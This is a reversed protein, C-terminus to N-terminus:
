LGLAARDSLLRNRRRTRRHIRQELGLWLRSVNTQYSHGAIIGSSPVIDLCYASSTSLTVTASVQAATQVDILTVTPAVGNVYLNRGFIRLRAGSAVEANDFHMPYPANLSISASASGGNVIWV